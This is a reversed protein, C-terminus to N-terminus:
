QKRTLQIAKEGLRLRLLPDLDEQTSWWLCAVTVEWLADPNGGSFLMVLEAEASASEVARTLEAPDHSKEALRRLHYFRAFALEGRLERLEALGLVVLAALAALAIARVTLHRLVAEADEPTLQSASRRSRRKGTSIM